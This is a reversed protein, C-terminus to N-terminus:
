NYYYKDFNDLSKLKNVITPSFSNCFKKYHIDDFDKEANHVSSTPTKIYWYITDILVCICIVAFTFTLIVQMYFM